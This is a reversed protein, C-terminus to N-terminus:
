CGRRALFSIIWPNRYREASGSAHECLMKGHPKSAICHLQQSGITWFTGQRCCLITNANWEQKEWDTGWIDHCSREQKRKDRKLKLRACVHDNQLCACAYLMSSCLQGSKAQRPYPHELEDKQPAHHQPTSCITPGGVEQASRCLIKINMHELIMLQSDLLFSLSPSLCISLSLM